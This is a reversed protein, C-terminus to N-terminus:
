GETWLILWACGNFYIGFRTAHVLRQPLEADQVVKSIKVDSTGRVTPDGIRTKATARNEARKSCSPGGRTGSYRTEHLVCLQLVPVWCEPAAAWM